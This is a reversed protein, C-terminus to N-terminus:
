DNLQIAPPLWGGDYVIQKPNYLRMFLVFVDNNVPLWNNTYEPAQSQIYIDVSGDPNTILGQTRDGISYRNIENEMFYYNKNYASLSWFADVPPLTNFHIKYKHLSGNLLSGGPLISANYYITEASSLYGPGFVGNLGLLIDSPNPICLGNLQLYSFTDGTTVDGVKRWCGNIGPNLLTLVNILSQIMGIMTAPATQIAGIQVPDLQNYNFGNHTIGAQTFLGYMGNLGTRVSDVNCSYGGLPSNKIYQYAYDFYQLSTPLSPNFTYSVTHKSPDPILSDIFHSVVYNDEAYQELTKLSVATQLARAAQFDEESHVLIRGLILMLDTPAIVIYAQKLQGGHSCHILIPGEAIIGKFQPSLLIVTTPGSGFNKKSVNFFNYSYFNVFSEVYYRDGFNPTELVYSYESLNLWAFSYLTDNNPARVYQEEPTALRDAHGMQGMPAFPFHPNPSQGTMRARTVEMIYTPLTANVAMLGSGAAFKGMYLAYDSQATAQVITYCSITILTLLAIKFNMKVKKRSQIEEFFNLLNTYINLFCEQKM